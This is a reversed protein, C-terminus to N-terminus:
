IRKTIGKPMFEEWSLDDTIETFNNVSIDKVIKLDSGFVMLPVRVAISNLLKICNRRQELRRRREKELESLEKNTTKNKKEKKLLDEYEEQDLGEDNIKITNKLRPVSTSIIKELNKFESIELDSLDFLKPNYLRSDEFGNRVVKDIIHQKFYSLLEKEDFSKMQSGSLGIVPCFNIFEKLYEEDSGDGQNSNTSIEAVIKLTRDPAFDFVYCNTKEKPGFIAPTQVRFITQMYSTASTSSSGYLMLVATWAPVTVGTTLRGCSLTITYTKTHDDGIAKRVMELSDDNESDFDGVGAVNVIDYSEFVPHENLLKSLAKAEKVGPLLWLTHRFNERYKVTSFPYTENKDNSLLNLFKIIVKEHVFTGIDDNTRSDEYFNPESGQWTRFFEKFNFALDDFDDYKNRGLAEGLDYTYINLKPLSEYPNYDGFRKEVWDLKAQQEMIYDWTYVEEPEFEIEDDSLINYPTGSLYLIKTTKSSNRLEKIVSRGLDTLTGEHAEDVIVFDWEFNFVDDNKDYKKGLYSSGRLYQISAFYIIHKGKEYYKLLEELTAGKTKSGYFYKDSQDYFIKYFDEYWGDNVVPRHTIIITKRFDLEKIVQLASLTKGFRM